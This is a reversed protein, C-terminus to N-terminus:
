IRSSAKKEASTQRQDTQVRASHDVSGPGRSGTPREGSTDTPVPVAEWESERPVAPRTVDTDRAGQRPLGAWKRMNCRRSAVATSEDRPRPHEEDGDDGLLSLTSQQQRAVARRQNIRTKLPACALQAAHAAGSRCPTRLVFPEHRERKPTWGGFLGASAGVCTFGLWACDCCSLMGM